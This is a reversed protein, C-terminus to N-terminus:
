RGPPAPVMVAGPDVQPIGFHGALHLLDIPRLDGAIQVLNMERPGRTLVAVDDIDTGSFHLWLDTLQSTPQANAGPSGGKGNVLHHWGAANYTAVLGGFAEPAYFAPRPFRYSDVTISTISAAVRRASSGEPGLLGQASQIQSRDLTFSTHTAPQDALSELQHPVSQVPPPPPGYSPQQAYVSLPAFLACSLLAPHLRM